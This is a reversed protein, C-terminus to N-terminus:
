LGFYKQFQVTHSAKLKLRFSEFCHTGFVLMGEHRFSHLLTMIPWYTLVIMVYCRMVHQIQNIIIM